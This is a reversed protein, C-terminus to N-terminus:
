FAASRGVMMRGADTAGLPGPIWAPCRPRVAREGGLGVSGRGRSEARYGEENMVWGSCLHTSVQLRPRFRDRTRLRPNLEPKDVRRRPPPAGGYDLHLQRLIRAWHVEDAVDLHALQMLVLLHDLRALNRIVFRRDFLSKKIRRLYHELGGTTWPSHPNTLGFGIHPRARDFTWLRLREVERLQTPSLGELLGDDELHQVGLQFHGWRRSTTFTKKNVSRGLPTERLGSRRLHEQAQVMLHATCRFVRADPWCEGVAGIIADDGDCVVHGPAGPLSSLFRAWHAQSVSPSAGYRWILPTTHSKAAERITGGCYSLAGFVAYRLRGGQKPRGDEFTDRTHLTIHDLVVVEPWSRFGPNEELFHDHLIPAYMSVWDGTLRGDASLDKGSELARRRAFRAARRYRDGNALVVLAAAKERLSFRDDRATAVGEGPGGPRECEPCTGTTLGGVAKKPLPPQFLHSDPSSRDCGQPIRRWRQYQGYKGYRGDKWVRGNPHDPCVPRGM